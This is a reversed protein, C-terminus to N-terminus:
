EVSINREDTIGRVKSVLDDDIDRGGAMMEALVGPERGLVLGAQELNGDCKNQCFLSLLERPGSNGAKRGNAAAKTTM